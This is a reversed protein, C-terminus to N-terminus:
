AKEMLRLKLKLTVHVPVPNAAQIVTIRNAENPPMVRQWSCLHQFTSFPQHQNVQVRALTSNVPDSTRYQVM